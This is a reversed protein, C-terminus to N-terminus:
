LNTPLIMEKRTLLNRIKSISYGIALATKLSDLSISYIFTGKCKSDRFCPKKAKATMFLDRHDDNEEKITEWLVGYTM